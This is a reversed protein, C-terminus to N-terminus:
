LAIRTLRNLGLGDLFAAADDWAARSFLKAESLGERQANELKKELKGSKIDKISLM